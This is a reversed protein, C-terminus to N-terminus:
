GDVPGIRAEARIAAYGDEIAERVRVLTQMDRDVLGDGPARDSLSWRLDHLADLYEQWARRTRASSLLLVRGTIGALDGTSGPPIPDHETSQGTLVDLRRGTAALETFVDAYLTLRADDVRASRQQRGQIAAGLGIGALTSVVAIVTPVVETM